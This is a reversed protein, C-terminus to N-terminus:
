KKGLHKNLFDVAKARERELIANVRDYEVPHALMEHTVIAGPKVLRDELGFMELLSTFRAMGRYKNGVVLFQKNFIISFVAGHFSDTVVFRADAFLRLWETVPIYVGPYKERLEADTHNFNVSLHRM